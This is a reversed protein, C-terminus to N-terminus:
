FSRVFVIPSSIRHSMSCLVEMELWFPLLPWGAAGQEWVRVVHVWYLIWCCMANAVHPTFFRWIRPWELLFVLKIETMNVIGCSSELLVHMYLYHIKSIWKTLIKWSLNWTVQRHFTLIEQNAVTIKRRSM